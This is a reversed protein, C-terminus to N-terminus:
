LRAAERGGPQWAAQCGPLSPVRDSPPHCSASPRLAQGLQRAFM